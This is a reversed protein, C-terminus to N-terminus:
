SEEDEEDEGARDDVTLAVWCNMQGCPLLIESQCVRTLREPCNSCNRINEPNNMFAIYQKKDM